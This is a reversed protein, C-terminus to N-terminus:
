RFYFFREVGGGVELICVVGLGSVIEFFRMYVFFLVGVNKNGVLLCKEDRGVRRVCRLFVFM